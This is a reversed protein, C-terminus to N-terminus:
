IGKFRYLSFDGGNKKRKIQLSSYRSKLMDKIEDAPYESIERKDGADEQMKIVQVVDDLVRMLKTSSRYCLNFTFDSMGVPEVTKKSVETILGNIISLHTNLMEDKKSADPEDVCDKLTDFIAQSIQGIQSCLLSAHRFEFDELITKPVDNKKKQEQLWESVEDIWPKELNKAYAVGKGRRSHVSIQKVYAISCLKELMTCLTRSSMKVNKELDKYRLFSGDSPLADLIEKEINRTKREITSLTM